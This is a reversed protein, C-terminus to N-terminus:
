LRRKLLLTADESLEAIHKRVVVASIMPLLYLWVRYPLRLLQGLHIHRREEGRLAQQFHAPDTGMMEAAQKVTLGSQQLASLVCQGVVKELESFDMAAARHCLVWCFIFLGTCVELSAHGFLPRGVEHLTLAIYPAM